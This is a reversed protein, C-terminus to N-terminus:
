KLQWFEPHNLPVDSRTGGYEELIEQKRSKTTKPADKSGVITEVVPKPVPPNEPLPAKFPETSKVETSKTAVPANLEKDLKDSAAENAKLDKAFQSEKPNAMPEENM